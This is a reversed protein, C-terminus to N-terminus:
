NLIVTGPWANSPSIKRGVNPIFQDKFISHSGAIGQTACPLNQQSIFDQHREDIKDEPVRPQNKELGNMSDSFYKTAESDLDQTATGFQAARVRPKMRFKHVDYASSKYRWANCSVREELVLEVSM